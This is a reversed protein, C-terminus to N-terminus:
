LIYLFGLFLAVMDDEYFTVENRGGGRRQGKPMNVSSINKSTMEIIVGHRHINQPLGSNSSETSTPMLGTDDERLQKWM